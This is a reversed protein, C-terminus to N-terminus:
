TSLWSSLTLVPLSHKDDSSTDPRVTTKQSDHLGAQCEGAPCSHWQQRCTVNCYVSVETTRVVLLELGEGVKDINMAM